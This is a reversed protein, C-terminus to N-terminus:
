EAELFDDFSFGDNRPGPDLEGVDFTETAPFHEKDARLARRLALRAAGEDGSLFAHLLDDREGHSEGMAAFLRQRLEASKAFLLSARRSGFLAAFNGSQQIYPRELSEARAHKDLLVAADWAGGRHSALKPRTDAESDVKFLEEFEVAVRTM